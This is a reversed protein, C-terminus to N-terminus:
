LKGGSASAPQLRGSFRWAGRKETIATQERQQLLGQFTEPQMRDPLM